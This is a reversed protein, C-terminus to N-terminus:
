DPGAGFRQPQGPRCARRRDQDRRPFDSRNRHSAGAKPRNKPSLSISSFRISNSCPSSARERRCMNHLDLKRIGVRGAFPATLMKQAIIARVREATAAASDRAAEAADFNAKATNGRQILQRQRELALDANKLVALNNKLDAQEVSNRNDITRARSSGSRYSREASKLRSISKKCRGSPGLRRCSAWTEIEAM